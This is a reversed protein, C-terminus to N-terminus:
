LKVILNEALDMPPLRAGSTGGSAGGSCGYILKRLSHFQTTFKIDSM